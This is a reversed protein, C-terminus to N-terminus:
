SQSLAARRACYVEFVILGISLLMFWWIFSEIYAMMAATVFLYLGLMAYRIHIRLGDSFIALGLLLVAVLGAQTPNLSETYTFLFVVGLAMLSGLWHYIHRLVQNDVASQNAQMVFLIAVVIFCGFWYYLSWEVSVEILGVGIVSLVLIVIPSAKGLVSEAM